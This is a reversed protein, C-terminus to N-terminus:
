NFALLVFFYLLSLFGSVQFRWHVQFLFNAIRRKTFKKNWFGQSIEDPKRSSPKRKEKKETKRKEKSIYTACAFRLM